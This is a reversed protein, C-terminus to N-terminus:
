IKEKLIQRVGKVAIMLWDPRNNLEYGVEYIAKELLFASLLMKFDQKNSPLFDAKDATKLYSDLFVASVYLYWIDAWDSLQQTEDTQM